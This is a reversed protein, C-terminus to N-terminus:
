PSLKKHERLFEAFEERSMRGTMLRIVAEYLHDQDADISVHNVELFTLTAHLATRKNGDNFPHNMGLHFAYASAIAFLDADPQYLYANQPQALASDLLGADGLGPMGGFLEIQQRHLALVQESSLFLPENM